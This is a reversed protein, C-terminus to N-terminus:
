RKVKPKKPKWVWEGESWVLRGPGSPIHRAIDNAEAIIEERHKKLWVWGRGRERPPIKRMLFDEDGSSMDDILAPALEVAAAQWQMLLNRGFEARGTRTRLLIYQPTCGFRIAVAMHLSEHMSLLHKNKFSDPNAEWYKRM